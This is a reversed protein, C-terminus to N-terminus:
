TMYRQALHWLADSEVESFLWLNRSESKIDLRHPNASQAHEFQKVYTNGANSPWRWATPPPYIVLEIGGTRMITGNGSKTQILPWVQLIRKDSVNQTPLGKCECCRWVQESREVELLPTM